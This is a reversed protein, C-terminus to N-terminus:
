PQQTRKSIFLDLMRLLMRSASAENVGAKRQTKCRGRCAQWSSSAERTAWRISTESM